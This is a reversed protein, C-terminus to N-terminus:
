HGLGYNQPLGLATLVATTFDSGSIYVAGANPPATITANFACGGGNHEVRIDGDPTHFVAVDSSRVLM